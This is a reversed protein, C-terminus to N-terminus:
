GAGRAFGMLERRMNRWHTGRWYIKHYGPCEYFQEQTSYVFRPVRDEVTQKDVPSLSENCEICLTFVNQPGLGLADTLQQMQKRFDDSTALFVPVQGSTVVRRETIYRDKTVVVRGQERGIRLLDGDDVDPIFLADYGMVRLWKALRGVNVDVVFRPEM